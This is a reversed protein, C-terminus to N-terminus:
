EETPPITPPRSCRPCMGGSERWRDDSEARWEALLDTISRQKEGSASEKTKTYGQIDALRGALGPIYAAPTNPDRLRRSLEGVLEERSLVADGSGGEPGVIEELAKPKRRRRHESM